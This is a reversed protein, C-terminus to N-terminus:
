SSSGRDLQQTFFLFQGYALLAFSLTMFGSIFIWYTSSQLLHFKETMIGTYVLITSIAVCGLGASTIATPKALRSKRALAALCISLGTALFIFFIGFLQFLHGLAHNSDM